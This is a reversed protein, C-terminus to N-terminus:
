AEKTAAAAEEAAIGAVDATEISELAAQVEEASAADDLEVGADALAQQTLAVSVTETVKEVIIEKVTEESKGALDSLGVFTITDNVVVYLQRGTVGTSKGGNQAKVILRAQVEPSAGDYIQGDAGLVQDKKFTLASSALPMAAIAASTVLAFVINKM